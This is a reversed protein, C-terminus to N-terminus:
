PVFRRVAQIKDDSPIMGIRVVDGGRPAHIWQTASIAIGVHSIVTPQATTFMFVLDGPRIEETRWDVATGKTSQMASQHPLYVGIQRYAATTLGSCDFADPGASNFKYPKGLQARAFAIVTDIPSAAAPTTPSPSIAGPGAAGAPVVLSAGPHVVSKVTLGNLALLQSLKIGHKRAIGYLYDGQRVVYTTTPGTAATAPAPQQTEPKPAAGATPTTTTAPVVLTQGPHITSTVKIGNASLLDALKVGLKRAIGFLTDGRKVTYTAGTPASPAPSAPRGSPSADAAASTSLAGLSLAATASVIAVRHFRLM